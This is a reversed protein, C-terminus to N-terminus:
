ATTVYIRILSDPSKYSCLASLSDCWSFLFSYLIFYLIPSCLPARHQAKHYFYLAMYPVSNWNKKKPGLDLKGDICSAQTTYKNRTLTISKLTQHTGGTKRQKCGRESICQRSNITRALGEWRQGETGGSHREGEWGSGMPEEPIHTHTYAHIHTDTSWLQSSCWPAQPSSWGPCPSMPDRPSTWSGGLWRTKQGRGGAGRPRNATPGARPRFEWCPCWRCAWPRPTSARTSCLPNPWAWRPATSPCSPRHAPAVSCASIWPGLVSAPCPFVAVWVRCPTAELSLLRPGRSSLTPQAWIPCSQIRVGKALLCDAKLGGWCRAWGEQQARSRLWLTATPRSTSASLARTLTASWAAWWRATTRSTWTTRAPTSSATAPTPTASTAARM